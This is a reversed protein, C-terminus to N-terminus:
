HHQREQKGRLFYSHILSSEALSVVRGPARKGMIVTCPPLNREVLGPFFKAQALHVSHAPVTQM